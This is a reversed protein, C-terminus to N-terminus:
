YAFSVDECSSEPTAKRSGVLGNNPNSQSNFSNWVRAPMDLTAPMNVNCCSMVAGVNMTLFFVDHLFTLTKLSRPIKTNPQNM